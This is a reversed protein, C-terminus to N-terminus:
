AVTKDSVTKLWTQWGAINHEGLDKGSLEKLISYAFDHNNLQKLALLQILQTGGKQVIVRQNSKLKMAISLVYLAKNRDTVNPADLLAFIPTLNVDYLQAKEMTAAMVRMVNNRVSVSQDSIYSTLVRMIEHPDQFHGVLMVAAARRESDDDHQLTDLVLKKEKIVGQNFIALYPKLNPYDFGVFCHYVPCPASSKKLKHDFILQFSETQYKMMKDILDHKPIPPKDSAYHRPEVLRLRALQNHQVVEITTYINKNDPYIISQFDVSSLRFKNKIEEKLAEKKMMQKLLFAENSDHGIKAIENVVVREITAVQNAYQKLIQEGEQHNTGYVDVIGYAWGSMFFVLGFVTLIM